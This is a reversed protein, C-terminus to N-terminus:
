RGTEAGKSEESPSIPREFYTDCLKTVKKRYDFLIFGAGLLANPSFGMNNDDALLFAEALFDLVNGDSDVEEILHQIKSDEM